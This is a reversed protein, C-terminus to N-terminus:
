RMILLNDNLVSVGTHLDCLDQVSTTLKNFNAHRLPLSCIVRPAIKVLEDLDSLIDVLPRHGTWYDSHLIIFNQPQLKKLIYLYSKKQNPEAFVTNPHWSLKCDQLHKLEIYIADNNLRWSGSFLFVTKGPITLSMVHDLLGDDLPYVMARCRDSKRDIDKSVHESLLSDVIM